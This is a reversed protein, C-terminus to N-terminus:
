VSSPPPKSDVNKKLCYVPYDPRSLLPQVLFTNPLVFDNVRGKPPPGPQWITCPHRSFLQSFLTLSLLFFFLFSFFLFRNFWVKSYCWLYGHNGVEKINTQVVATVHVCMMSSCDPKQFGESVIHGLAVYGEPPIPRWFASNGYHGGANNSSWVQVFDVPPQLLPKTAKPGLVQRLSIVGSSPVEEQTQEAYDGISWCGEPPSPRWVSLDELPFHFLLPPTTVTIDPFCILALPCLPLLHTLKGYPKAKTGRDDWIKKFESGIELYLKADMEADEWICVGELELEDIDLM